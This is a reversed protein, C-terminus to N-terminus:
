PVHTTFLRRLIRALLRCIGIIIDLLTENFEDDAPSPM